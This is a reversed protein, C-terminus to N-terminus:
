SFLISSLGRRGTLTAPDTPGWIDFFQVLQKRAGDENWKRDRAVIKLLEEAAEDRKNHANLALALDFRAQHDKPNDQVQKELDPLSGLKATQEALELKTVLEAISPTKLHEEPLNTIINRALEIEDVALYCTGLGAIADLNGQEKDLVSVFVEAAQAADGQELLTAAKAMADAIEDGPAPAPNAPAPLKDLFTKVQSEPVAGMLADVPKGDVFAVVAPISKIGMQGAVEPHKDIDMKALIIKGDSDAVAKELIPGLQKCPGCWPAWFDVLVIQNNSGKIVDDVFEATTIDKVPPRVAKEAAPAAQPASAPQATQPNQSYGSVQNSGYSASFGTGTTGANLTDPDESM